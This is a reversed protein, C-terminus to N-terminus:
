RRAPPTTSSPESPPRPTSRSASAMPNSSATITSRAAPSPRSPSSATSMALSSGHNILHMGALGGFHIGDFDSGSISGNNRVTQQGPGLMDVGDVHGSIFAGSGNDVQGMAGQFLVASDNASFINGKNILDSGFYHSYVGISDVSKLTVHQAITVTEYDQNFDFADDITTSINKPVTVSIPM